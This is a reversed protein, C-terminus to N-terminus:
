GSLRAGEAGLMERATEIMERRKKQWEQDAEANPIVAEGFVGRQLLGARLREVVRNEEGHLREGFQELAAEITSIGLGLCHKMFDLLPANDAVPDIKKSIEAAAVVKRGADGDLLRMLEEKCGELGILGDLRKSVLRCFAERFKEEAERRRDEESMHLHRTRELVLELTSKIDAM